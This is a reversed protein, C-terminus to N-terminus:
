RRDGFSRPILYEGFSIINLGLHDDVRSVVESAEM